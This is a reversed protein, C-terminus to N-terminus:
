SFTKGMSKDHSYTKRLYTSMNRIIEEVEGLAAIRPPREVVTQLNIIVTSKIYGFLDTRREGAYLSAWLVHTQKKLAAGTRRITKKLAAGKRGLAAGTTRRLAEQM